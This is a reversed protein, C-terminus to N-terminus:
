ERIIFHGEGFEEGGGLGEDGALFVGLGFLEELGEDDFDEAQAAELVIVVRGGERGGGGGRGGGEL